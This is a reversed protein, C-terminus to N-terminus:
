TTANTVQVMRTYADEVAPVQWDNEPKFSAYVQTLAITSHGLWDRITLLDVGQLRWAIASLHRCDKLSLDARGIARRAKRHVTWLESEKVNPFLLDSGKLGEALIHAALKDAIDRPIPVQREPSKSVKSRKFRVRPHDRDLLCDWVRLGVWDGTRRDKRIAIIEGVDAGSHHLLKFIPLLDPRQVEIVRFYAVYEKPALPVPMRHGGEDRKPVAKFAIPHKALKEDRVMWSAWTGLYARYRNVTAASAPKGTDQRTRGHYRTLQSLFRDVNQSTFDATTPDGLFAIFRKLCGEVKPWDVVTTRKTEMYETLLKSLRPLRPAKAETLLAQLAADGGRYAVWLEETSFRGDLRAKLIPWMLRKGLDKVMASRTTLEHKTRVGSSVQFRDRERASKPVRGIAADLGPVVVDINKRRPKAKKGNRKSTAEGPQGPKMAKM